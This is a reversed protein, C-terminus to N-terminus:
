KGYRIKIKYTQKFLNGSESYKIITKPDFKYKNRVATFSEFYEYTNNLLDIIEVPISQPLKCGKLGLLKVSISIRNKTEKSLSIGRKPSIIHQVKLNESIKNRTEISPSKGTNMTPGAIYTNNYSLDRDLLNLWYQEREILKDKEVLEIIYFSFNDVGHKNFSNQLHKNVHKLLLLPKRHRQYRRHFCKTSGLYIFGTIENKIIYIGSLRMIEHGDKSWPTNLPISYLYNFDM